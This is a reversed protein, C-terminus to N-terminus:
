TTLRIFLAVVFAVCLDTILARRGYSGGAYPFHVTTAILPAALVLFQWALLFLTVFLARTIMRSWLYTSIERQYAPAAYSIIRETIFWVYTALLYGIAYIPWVHYDPLWAEPIIGQARNAIFIISLLHLFQDLLHPGIIWNPRYIFFLNKIVDIAFHFGALLLLYPWIFRRVSGVIFLTTALHISVHVLLGRWNRKAEVLWGPQLPYDALFHALYFLWFIM